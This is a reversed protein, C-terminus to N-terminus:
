LCGLAFDLDHVIVTKTKTFGGAESFAWIQPSRQGGMLLYIKQWCNVFAVFSCLCTQHSHLQSNLVALRDVGRRVPECLYYRSMCKIAIM